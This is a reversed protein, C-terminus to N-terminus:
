AMPNVPIPEMQVANTQIFSIRASVNAVYPLVLANRANVIVYPVFERTISIDTLVHIVNEM